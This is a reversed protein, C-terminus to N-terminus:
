GYITVVAIIILRSMSSALLKDVIMEKVKVEKRRKGSESGAYIMKRTDAEYFRGHAARKTENAYVIFTLLMIAYLNTSQSGQQLRNESVFFQKIKLIERLM